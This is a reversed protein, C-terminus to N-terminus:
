LQTPHKRFFDFRPPLPRYRGGPAEDLVETLPSFAYAWDFARASLGLYSAALECGEPALPHTMLLAARLGCLTDTWLPGTDETDRSEASWRRNLGRIYGDLVDFIRHFQHSAMLREYCLLAERAAAAAQPSPPSDPLRPCGAQQLSYLLSRLVRNLVNTLLSGERLVPDAGTREGASLYAQPRFSSSKHALGLSFFHMRLQDATYYALLEDAMPPKVSSSSSAKKDMFLIHRNAVLEPMPLEELPPVPGGGSLLCAFLAPEAVGYFYINDEGIFQYVRSRRDLWWDRWAGEPYGRAELCAQTFSVPAWLSEPWVWFTLGELGPRGPVPVGWESNGSLRFPVLTKGTRYRIGRGDLAERGRDRAALSEFRFAYSGKGATHELAPRGMAAMLAPLDEVEDKKVYIEPAKLFEEITSIVAERTRGRRLLARMYDALPKRWPELDFYWNEVQVLRPRRGSLASVPDILESPLYQHGLACEDAYGRESACGAIPCRGVVQRGNLLTQCEDDYFQPSSLRKLAGLRELAEFVAASLKRHIQGSRGLASAGFYDLGIGYAQLTRRQGDHQAQVYEQLSAPAQGHQRLRRYAEVIPSGYCDTGSLFLVNEPGIRDRLFRAFVDAHVFMGGVHGFHLQKNGYPMGATVVARRPFTPRENIPEM